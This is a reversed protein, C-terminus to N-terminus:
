RDRWPEPACCAGPLYGPTLARRADAYDGIVGSMIALQGPRRALQASRLEDRGSKAGPGAGPSLGRGEGRVGRPPRPAYPRLAAAGLRGKGARGARDAHGVRGGCRRTCGKAPSRISSARPM